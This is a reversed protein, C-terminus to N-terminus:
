RRHTNPWPYGKVLVTANYDRVRKVSLTDRMEADLALDVVLRRLERGDWADPAESACDLATKKLNDFLSTLFAEREQPTM